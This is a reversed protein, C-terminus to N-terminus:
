NSPASSNPSVYGPDGPGLCYGETSVSGSTFASPENIVVGKMLFQKGERECHAKAQALTNKEQQEVTMCGALVITALAMLMFIINRL